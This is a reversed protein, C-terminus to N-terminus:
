DEDDDWKGEGEIFGQVDYADSEFLGKNKKEADATRKKSEATKLLSQIKSDSLFPTTQQKSETSSTRNLGVFSSFEVRKGSGEIKLETDDESESLGIDSGADSFIDSASDEMPKASQASCSSSDGIGLIGRKKQLNDKPGTNANKSMPVYKIEDTAALRGSAPIARDIASEAKSEVTIGASASASLELPQSAEVETQSCGEKVPVIKEEQTEHNNKVIESRKSRKVKKKVKGDPGTVYKVKVEELKTRSGIPKFKARQNLQSHGKDAKTSNESKAQFTAELDEEYVENTRRKM